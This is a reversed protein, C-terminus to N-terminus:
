VAFGEIGRKVCSREAYSCSVITYFLRVFTSPNECVFELGLKGEKRGKKKGGRTYTFTPRNNSVPLPAVGPLASSFRFAQIRTLIPCPSGTVDRIKDAPSRLYPAGGRGAPFTVSSISWRRRARGEHRPWTVALGRLAERGWRCVAVIRRKGYINGEGLIM